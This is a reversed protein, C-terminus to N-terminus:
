PHTLAALVRLEEPVQPNQCLVQNIMPDALRLLHCIQSTSLNERRAIATHIAWPTNPLAASLVKDIIAPTANPHQAVHLLVYFHIRDGHGALLTQLDRATALPNVAVASRLPEYGSTIAKQAWQAFLDADTTSALLHFAYQTEKPLALTEDVEFALYERSGSVSRVYSFLDMSTPTTM